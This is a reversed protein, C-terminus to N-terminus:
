WLGHSGFRAPSLQTEIRAVQMLLQTRQPEWKELCNSVDSPFCPVEADQKYGATTSSTGPVTSLVM